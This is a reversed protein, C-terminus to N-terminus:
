ALISEIIEETEAFVELCADLHTMNLAVSNLLIFAYSNSLEKDPKQTVIQYLAAAALEAIIEELQPKFPVAPDSYREIAAHALGHLYSKADVTFLHIEYLNRDYHGHCRCTGGPVVKVTIGWESAREILPIESLGIPEHSPPKGETYGFEGIEFQVLVSVLVEGVSAEM